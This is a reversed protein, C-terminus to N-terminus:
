GHTQNQRIKVAKFIDALVSDLRDTVDEALCRLVLLGEAQMLFDKARDFYKEIVVVILLQKILNIMKIKKDLM